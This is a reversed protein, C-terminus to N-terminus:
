EQAFGIDALFAKLKAASKRLLAAETEDLPMEIVEEVGKRGVVSPVGVCVGSIGHYGELHVSVPLISHQDKLIAECIRALALAIAYYTAGKREIIKYAATRTEDYIRDKDLDDVCWRPNEHCEKLDVGALNLSSWVPVESDGHEGIILGHVSRPDVKLQEAVLYRFRSSDLLTGSGIVRHRPWGSLKLAVQTLIDVPNTAILLIGSQNYQVVQKIIADFIAVNRNMLDIRTEGQRQAAGATIVIIDAGACDPYDGVAIRMPTALMLGHNLDLADGEAKNRNQDILILEHALGRLLVTYAFTSGVAGCGILVIKSPKM